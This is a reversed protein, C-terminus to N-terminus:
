TLGSLGDGCGPICGTPSPLGRRQHPRGFRVASRMAATTKSTMMPATTPPTTPATTVLSLVLLELLPLLALAVVPALLAASAATVLAEDAVADADVDVVVAEVLGVDFDVDVLVEDANGFGVFLMKGNFQGAILLVWNVTWPSLKRTYQRVSKLVADPLTAWDSCGPMLSQMLEQTVYLVSFWFM